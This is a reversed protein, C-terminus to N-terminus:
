FTCLCIFYSHINKTLRLYDITFRWLQVFEEPSCYPTGWWFWDGSNEHFPRYIIPIFDQNADKLGMLFNSVRDLHQLFRRHSATSKDLIETVVNQSVDWSNGRTKFNDMHDSYTIVGGREHARITHRSFVFGRTFDFGYVAPYDGVAKLCDSDDEFGSLDEWGIGELTTNEHGFLLYDSSLKKLQHYLSQTQCTALPDSQANLQHASLCLM